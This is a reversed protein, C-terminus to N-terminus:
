ADTAIVAHVPGVQPGAEGTVLSDEEITPGVHLGVSGMAALVSHRTVRLVAGTSSLM